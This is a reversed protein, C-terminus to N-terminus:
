DFIASALSAGARKLAGLGVEFLNRPKREGNLHSDTM